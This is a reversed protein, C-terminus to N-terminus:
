IAFEERKRGQKEAEALWAPLKGRGSWTEGNPGKFKVPLRVGAPKAKAAPPSGRPGSMVAEFSLNQEAAESRWKALLAHKAAEQKEKLKAQAAAIHAALEPVTMADIEVGNGSHKGHAAESM